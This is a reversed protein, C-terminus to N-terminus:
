SKKKPTIPRFTELQPSELQSKDEFFQRVVEKRVPRHEIALCHQKWRQDDLLKQYNMVFDFTHKSDIIENAIVKGNIRIPKNESDMGNPYDIKRFQMSHPKGLSCIATLFAGGPTKVKLDKSTGHKYDDYHLGKMPQHFLAMRWADLIIAQKDAEFIKFIDIMANETRPFDLIDKISLNTIILFVHDVTASYILLVTKNKISNQLALYCLQIRSQEYCNAITFPMYQKSKPDYGELKGQLIEKIINDTFREPLFGAISNYRQVRWDPKSDGFFDINDNRYERGMDALQFLRIQFIEDVSNETTFMPKKIIRSNRRALNKYRMSIDNSDHNAQPPIGFFGFSIKDAFHIAYSEANLNISNAAATEDMQKKNGIIIDKIYKMDFRPHFLPNNTYLENILVELENLNLQSCGAFFNFLDYNDQICKTLKGSFRKIWACKVEISSTLNFVSIVYRRDSLLIATEDSPLMNIHQIILNNDNLKSFLYIKSILNTAFYHYLDILSQLYIKVDEPSKLSFQELLFFVDDPARFSGVLVPLTKNNFFFVDDTKMNNFARKFLIARARDTQFYSLTEFFENPNLKLAAIFAISINKAIEKELKFIADRDDLLLNPFKLAIEQLKGILQQKTTIEESLSSNSRKM